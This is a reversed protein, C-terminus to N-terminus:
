RKRVRGAADHQADWEALEARPVRVLQHSTASGGVDLVTQRLEYRGLRPLLKVWVFYYAACIVLVGLGVVIYTAYWFSVDGGKAGTSPPYWPAVLMYVNALISFGLAVDWARFGSPPLGAHRRRWRTM